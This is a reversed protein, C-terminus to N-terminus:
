AVLCVVLAASDRASGVAEVLTDGAEAIKVEEDPGVLKGAASAFCANETWCCEKQVTKRHFGM